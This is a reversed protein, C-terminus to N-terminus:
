APYVKELSINGPKYGRILLRDICELVVWDEPKTINQIDKGQIKIDGGFYFTQKEFDVEIRYNDLLPYKKIFIGATNEKPSFGLVKLFNKMLIKNNFGKILFM